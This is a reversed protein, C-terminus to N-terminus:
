SVKRMRFYNEIDPLNADEKKHAYLKNNAAVETWLSAMSLDFDETKKINFVMWDEILEIFVINEINAEILAEVYYAASQKSTPSSAIGPEAEGPLIMLFHHYGRNRFYNMIGPKQSEVLVNCGYYRCQMLMDEYFLEATSPRYLYQCVYANNYSDGMNDFNIKQKVLSAGNSRRKDKTVDHDYPDVGCAFRANNLPVVFNGRQEVRNTEEFVFNKPRKWRGNPNESWIVKSDRIGGEWMYNGTEIADKNWSLLDRQENLKIPNFICTEGDVRFAEALTFPNKRIFSSLKVPKDALGNRTNQFYAKASAENPNGYRDFHAAKYSPLFLTYLGSKTRGNEDREHPLPNSMKTLEQFDSGGNEMEEVTTTFLHLINHYNIEGDENEVECSYRVTNQRETISVEKLKGSEDSVYTEVQPGDYGGVGSAKFDIFSELPEEMENEDEEAKSGRRSTAFFRLESPDSGKMLDFRPRFFHPLKQWPHIVAKKFFEAADDDTKSQIGGHHNNLRSTREYLVLGARATKGNKRKTIENLGLCHIDEVCYQVVYFYDRDPLRYSMSKGQFKWHELYMWHFGNIYVLEGNNWFWVGRLRRGWQERRINELYPDVYKPRVKQIEREKKRKEEFDTPLGMREWYQESEIDSRKFIDTKEVQGNAVNLGYGPAAIWCKFVFGFANDNIEICSGGEIPKFM